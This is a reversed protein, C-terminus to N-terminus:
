DSVRDVASAGHSSLIGSLLSSPFGQDHGGVHAVIMLNDDGQIM